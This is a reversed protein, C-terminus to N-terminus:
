NLYILKREALEMDVYHRLFDLAEEIQRDNFEGPNTALREHLKNSWVAIEMFFEKQEM